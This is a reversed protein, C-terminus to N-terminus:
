DSTKEVTATIKKKNGNRRVTFTLETGLPYSAVVDRFQFHNKIAQGQIKLIKDGERFSSGSASKVKAGQGRYEKDLTVGTIGGYRGGEVKGGESVIKKMFHRITNSPVCFGLGAQVPARFMNNGRSDSWYRVSSRSITGLYKGDLTFVGGGSDNANITADVHIMNGIGRWNQPTSVVGLSFNPMVVEEEDYLRGSAAGGNLVFDGPQVSSSDALTVAPVDVEDRNEVSFVAIDVHPASGQAKLELVKGGALKAELVMNGGRMKQIKILKGMTHNASVLYPNGNYEIVTGSAAKSFGGGSLNISKISCKKVTEITNIIRQELTDQENTEEQQAPLAPASLILLAILGVLINVNTTKM